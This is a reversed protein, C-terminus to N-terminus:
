GWFGFNQPRSYANWALDAFIEFRWIKLVICRILMFNWLGIHGLSFVKHTTRYSSTVFGLHRVAAMKSKSKKAMIKAYILMKSGFKTCHHFILLGFPGLAQFDSKQFDMIASQRWRPNRNQAMIEADILIKAGFKVGLHSIPLGLPWLAWFDSKRFDLIASLRWRPNRNQAMIAANTLM